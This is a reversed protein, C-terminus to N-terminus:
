LDDTSVQAHPEDAPEQVFHFLEPNLAPWSRHGYAQDAMAQAHGMAWVTAVITLVFAPYLIRRLADLM